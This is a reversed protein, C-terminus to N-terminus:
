EQAPVITRQRAANRLHPVRVARSCQGGGHLTPTPCSRPARTARRACEKRATAAGRFSGADRRQAKFEALIMMLELPLSRYRMIGFLPERNESWIMRSFM